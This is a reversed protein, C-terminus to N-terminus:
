DEGEGEEIIPIIGKFCSSWEMITAIRGSKPSLKESMFYYNALNYIEKWTFNISNGKTM